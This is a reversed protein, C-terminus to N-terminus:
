TKTFYVYRCIPDECWDEDRLQEQEWSFVEEGECEPLLSRYLCLLINPFCVCLLFDLVVTSDASVQKVSLTDIIFGTILGLEPEFRRYTSTHVQSWGIVFM